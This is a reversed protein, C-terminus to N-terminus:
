ACGLLGRVAPAWGAMNAPSYSMAAFFWLVFPFWEPDERAFDPEEDALDATAAVLLWAWKMSAGQATTGWFMAGVRLLPRRCASCFM